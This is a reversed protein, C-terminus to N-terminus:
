QGGDHDEAEEIPARELLAKAIRDRTAPDDVEEKVVDIFVDVLSRSDAEAEARIHEETKGDLALGRALRQGKQARDLIGAVKDLNRVDEGQLGSKQLSDFLRAVVVGWLKFHQANLSVRENAIREAM